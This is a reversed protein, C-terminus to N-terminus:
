NLSVPIEAHFAVVSGEGFTLQVRHTGIRLRESFGFANKLWQAAQLVDPYGLEPIFTGPSMSRNHLM